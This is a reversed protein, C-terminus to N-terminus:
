GVDATPLESVEHLKVKSENLGWLKRLHKEPTEGKPLKVSPSVKEHRILLEHKVHACEGKGRTFRARCGRLQDAGLEKMFNHGAGQPLELYEDRRMEHNYGHLYALIKQPAQVKHGQCEKTPETCSITRGGYWHVYVVYPAISYFTFTWSEGAKVRRCWSMRDLEPITDLQRIKKM